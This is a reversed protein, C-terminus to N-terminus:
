HPATCVGGEAPEAWSVPIDVLHEYSVAQGLVEISAVNGARVHLVIHGGILEIEVEAVMGAGAEPSFRAANGGIAATAAESIGGMVLEMRRAQELAASTDGDHGAIETMLYGAAAFLVSSIAAQGGTAPLRGRVRISISGAPAGEVHGIPLHATIAGTMGSGGSEASVSGSLDIMDYSVEDEGGAGSVRWHDSRGASGTVSAGPSDPASPSAARGTVRVTGASDASDGEVMTARTRAEYGPDFLSEALPESAARMAHEFSLCFMRAADEPTVGRADVTVGVLLRVDIGPISFGGGVELSARVQYTSPAAASEGHAPAARSHSIRAGLVVSFRAAPGFVPLPFNMNVNLSQQGGELGALTAISGSLLALLNPGPESIHLGRAPPASGHGRPHGIMTSAAEGGSVHGDTEDMQVARQVGSGAGGSPAHQDLLAEASEGRTVLEAVAEAHREYIDGAAGVGGSLQVGGRQQVVHAAEHAALHLDPTTAFAVQNGSAYARAGMAASGEAAIGGVHASVGSVDHRGFARQIASLHPLSGGSGSLGHAAALHVEESTLGRGSGDLQVVRPYLGASVADAFMQIPMASSPALVAGRAAVPGSGKAVRRELPTVDRQVAEVDGSRLYELSSALARESM